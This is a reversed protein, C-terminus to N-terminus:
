VAFIVALLDALPMCFFLSIIPTLPFNGLGVLAPVIFVLPILFFVQRSLILLVSSFEHGTVQLLTMDTYLIGIFPFGLFVIFLIVQALEIIELSGGFIAAFNHGFLLMLVLAAFGYSSCYLMTLRSVKKIKEKAENGNFYSIINQVGQTLGVIPMLIFTYIRQVVSWAAVHAMTGLSLLRANLVFGTCGGLIQIATQAAGIKFLEGASQFFEAASHALGGPFLKKKLLFLLAFAACVSESVLTGLALGSIGMKLVFAFVFNFCINVAVASFIIVLEMKPFGFARICCTLTYGLSSCINSLLQIQMYQRALEFIQGRAGLANLIAPLSLYCLLSTVLSVILTMIIGTSYSRRLKERENLYKAILIGTSMAFLTQLATFIGLMPSILAMASLANSGIGPLNGAFATDVIGTLMEVMLSLISPIGFIFILRSLSKHEYINTKM